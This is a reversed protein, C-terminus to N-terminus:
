FQGITIIKEGSKTTARESKVEGPQLLLQTVFLKIIFVYNGRIVLFM